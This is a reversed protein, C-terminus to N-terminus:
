QCICGSIQCNTLTECTVCLSIVQTPPCNAYTPNAQSGGAVHLASLDLQQLTERRLTLKNKM